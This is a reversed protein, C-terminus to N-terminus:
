CEAVLDLDLRHFSVKNSVEEYMKKYIRLILRHIQNFIQLMEALYKGPNMSLDMSYCRSIQMMTLMLQNVVIPYDISCDVTHM